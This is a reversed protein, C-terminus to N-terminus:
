ADEEGEEGEAIEGPKSITRAVGDRDRVHIELKGRRIRFGCVGEGQPWSCKSGHHEKAAERM